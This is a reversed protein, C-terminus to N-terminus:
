SASAHATPPPTFFANAVAAVFFGQAGGCGAFGIPVKQATVAPVTSLDLGALAKRVGAGSTAGTARVKAARLPDSVACLATNAM